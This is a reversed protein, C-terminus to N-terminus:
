AECPLCKIEDPHLGGHQTADVLNRTGSLDSVHGWRQLTEADEVGRLNAESRQVRWKLMWAKVTLVAHVVLWVYTLFLWLASFWIYTSSPSCQPTEQLVHWLWQTGLFNWLVFFPTFVTWTIAAVTRPLWGKHGIDLLLEGIAGGIARSAGASGASDAGACAWSGLLRTM